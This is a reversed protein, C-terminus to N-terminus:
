EWKGLWDLLLHIKIGTDPDFVSNHCGPMLNPVKGSGDMWCWIIDGGTYVLAISENFPLWNKKGWSGFGICKGKDRLVDQLARKLNLLWEQRQNILEQCKM